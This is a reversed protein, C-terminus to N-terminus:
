VQTRAGVILCVSKVLPFWPRNAVPGTGGGYIGDMFSILNSNLNYFSNPTGDPVISWTVTSPSGLNPSAGGVPNTWRDGPANFGLPSGPGSIGVTQARSGLQDEFAERYEDTTNPAFIACLLDSAMLERRELSELIARGCAIEVHPLMWLILPM